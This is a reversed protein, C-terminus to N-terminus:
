AHNIRKKKKKNLFWKQGFIMKKNSRYIKSGPTWQISTKNKYYETINRMRKILLVNCEYSILEYNVHDM